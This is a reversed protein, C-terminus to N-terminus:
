KLLLLKKTEVYTGACMRYLYVGSPLASADFVVEHDGADRVDDRLIAVQQGLTNFVMLTVRSREPLSYSITTSPNFPNPYNHSLTYAAPQGTGPKAHVDTTGMTQVASLFGHRVIYLSSSSTGGFPEGVSQYLVFAGNGSRAGSHFSLDLSRYQAHCVYAATMLVLIFLAKM